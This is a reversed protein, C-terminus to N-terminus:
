WRFGTVTVLVAVSAEKQERKQLHALQATRPLGGECVKLAAVRWGGEACRGGGPSQWQWWWLLLLLLLLLLWLLLQLLLWLLLLLCHFHIPGRGLRHRRAQVLLLLKLLWRWCHSRTCPSQLLPLLLLRWHSRTTLQLLLLWVLLMLLSWLPHIHICM